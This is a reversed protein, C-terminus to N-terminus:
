FYKVKNKPTGLIPSISDLEALGWGLGRPAGVPRGAGPFGLFRLIRVHGCGM